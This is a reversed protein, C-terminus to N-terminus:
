LVQIVGIVPTFTERNCQRVRFVRFKEEASCKGNVTCVFVDHRSSYETMSISWESPIPFTAYEGYLFRCMGLPGVSPLIEYVRGSIVLIM